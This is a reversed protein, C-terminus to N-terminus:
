VADLDLYRRRCIPCEKHSLLWESICAKHFVHPCAENQSLGIEEHVRLGELCIACQPHHQRQMSENDSAHSFFGSAGSRLGSLISPSSIMSGGGNAPRQSSAISIMSGTGAADGAPGRPTTLSIMSTPQETEIIDAGPIEGTMMKKARETTMVDTKLFNQVFAQRDTKSMGDVLQDNTLFAGNQQQQQRRQQEQAHQAAIRAAARRRDEAAAERTEQSQRASEVSTDHFHSVPKVPRPCPPPSTARRCTGCTDAGM